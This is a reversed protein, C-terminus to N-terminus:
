IRRGFGCHESEFEKYVFGYILNRDNINMRFYDAGIMNCETRDNMIVLARQALMPIKSYSIPLSMKKDGLVRGLQQRKAVYILLEETTWDM